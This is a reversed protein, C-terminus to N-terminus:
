PKQAVARATHGGHLRRATDKSVGVARGITEWSEGRARRERIQNVDAEARPRGWDTVRKGTKKAVFYGQERIQNQRDAVGARVRERIMALEFQAVAGIVQYMFVGAATTTDIQDKVSIFEVGLVKFEDLAMILHRLSRAFRDFKWVMVVDCKRRRVEAMMQDLIPRKEKAGSVGPELWLTPEWGRHEAETEMERVQMGEDQEGTSVRAYLFARKV